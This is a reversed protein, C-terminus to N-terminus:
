HMMNPLWLVIQPFIILLAAVALELIMWPVCSKFIQGLTSDDEPILIFGLVALALVLVIIM